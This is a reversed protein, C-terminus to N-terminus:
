RQPFFRALSKALLIRAYEPILDRSKDLGYDIEEPTYGIKTDHVKM